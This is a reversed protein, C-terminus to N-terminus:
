SGARRISVDTPVHFLLPPPVGGSTSVDFVLANFVKDAYNGQVPVRLGLDVRYFTAPLLEMRFPFDVIYRGPALGPPPPGGSFFSNLAFLGVGEMTSVVCGIEYDRIPHFVDLVARIVCDSGLRPQKVEVGNELIM